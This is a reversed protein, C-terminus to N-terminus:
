CDDMSINAILIEVARQWTKDAAKELASKAACQQEVQQEPTRGRRTGYNKLAQLIPDSISSWDGDNIRWTIDTVVGQEKTICYIVTDEIDGARNIRAVKGLSVYTNKRQQAFQLPYVNFQYNFLNFSPSLLQFQENSNGRKAADVASELESASVSLTAGLLAWMITKPILQM